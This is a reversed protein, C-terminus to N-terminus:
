TNQLHRIKQHGLKRFTKLTQNEPTELARIKQIQM